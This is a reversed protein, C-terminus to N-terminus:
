IRNSSGNIWIWGRLMRKRTCGRRWAIWDRSRARILGRKRACIWYWVFGIRSRRFFLLTFFWRDNSFFCNCANVIRGNGKESRFEDPLLRSRLFEYEPPSHGSRDPRRKINGPVNRYVSETLESRHNTTQRKTDITRAM